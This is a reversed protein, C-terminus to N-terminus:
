RIVLNIIKYDENNGLNRSSWKRNNIKKGDCLCLHITSHKKPLYNKVFNNKISNLNWDWKNNFMYYSFNENYIPWDHSLHLNIFDEKKINEFVKFVKLTFNLNYDYASILFSYNSQTSSLYGLESFISNDGDPDSLCQIMSTYKISKSLKLFDARIKSTEEFLEDVDSNKFFEHRFNSESQGKKKFKLYSDLLGIKIEPFNKSGDFYEFKNNKIIKIFENLNLKNILIKKM